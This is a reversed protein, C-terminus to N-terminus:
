YIFLEKRKDFYTKNLGIMALSVCVSTITSTDFLGSIDTIASAILPYLFNLAATAGYLIYVCMPGNAKFGALQFRTYIGFVSIAILLIGMIVDLGKLNGFVYYVMEPSSSQLSYVEGTVYLIGTGFNLIAGFFLAFYILFKYWKMPYQINQNDM